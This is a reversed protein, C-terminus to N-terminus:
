VKVTVAVVDYPTEDAGDAEELEAVGTAGGNKGGPKAGGSKGGAGGSKGGVNVGFQLEQM